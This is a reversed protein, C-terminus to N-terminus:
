QSICRTGDLSVLEPDQAAFPCPKSKIKVMRYYGLARSLSRNRYGMRPCLEGPCRFCESGGDTGGFCCRGTAQGGRPVGWESGAQTCSTEGCAAVNAELPM